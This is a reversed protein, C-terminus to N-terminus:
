HLSRYTQFQVFFTHAKLLPMIKSELLDPLSMFFESNTETSRSSSGINSATAISTISPVWGHKGNKGGSKSSISLVTDIPIMPFLILVNLIYMGKAFMVTDKVIIFGYYKGSSAPLPINAALKELTLKGESELINIANNPLLSNQYKSPIDYITDYYAQMAGPPNTLYIQGTSIWKAQNFDRAEGALSIVNAMHNSM